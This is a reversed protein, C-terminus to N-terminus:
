QKLKRELFDTMYRYLHLRANGGSIGHNHNPYIMMEFDVDAEILAKAMEMTNQYHVNDDASGHVLLYAGNIKDVHNIPSNDDYGDPNEQPTRMYRETYITDYFRWNTVPAVAIAASFVDSGWAIALSSIYGGYSWGFIAINNKDIYSKESLYRAAEIQDLTEYKGLQLYTMKKFEEGRAGTGRNDVSVVIYGMQTLMQFWAGNFANWRHTVRQSGPGGYAYMFLPYEKEPSFDSPKMMWANLETDDNIPITFFEPVVFGYDAITNKLDANDELLRIKSGDATHITYVPPTQIRSHNNIFYRFNESFSPDHYGKETTLKILNNGDLGISFLHREKPNEKSSTFYILKNKEDIGLFKSVEWNGQTIQTVQTGNMNYHYLHNFGDKESSIIFTKGDQIFTLDDTIDIYYKNKEEYMLKTQGTEADALLIELLNQLRNMRFVALQGPDQTWKIRPIYIDTEEGTDIKLISNSKFDYIHITVHANEEGAKPYKFRYEYPYLYGYILMMFEKVHTEDFRYFAIKNGDPSWQFGITFGFEEEYVWDTTGNIIENHRGDHTIQAEHGSLLDMVFINNDRVFAVRNGDPSFHPIRQMGNESLPMLIQSDLDYVFFESISSYRYISQTNFALLLKDEVPSFFYNDIKPTNGETDRLMGDIDIITKVFEGSSYEYKNIKHNNEVRTYHEGDMMSKGLRISRPVFKREQWIEEIKIQSYISDSSFYIGSFIFISILFNKLFRLNNQM